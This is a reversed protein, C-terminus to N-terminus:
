RPITGTTHQATRIHDLLQRSQAHRPQLALAQLVATEARSPHGALLEAQGLCHLHEASPSECIVAASLSQIAEEHRGLAMCALGTLYLVRQPEEGPAYTTALSHLTALARRPQNIQRYLEAIELLIERDDPAYGIARHYDALARDLQDTARMVRGRTAWASALKPNLDLALEANQRARRDQGQELYMQALRVRLEADEGALRVATELEAIAQPKAGQQWLAESYHRRAEPDDPFTKVAQALLKAARDHDGRESAAVGQQSLRRCSALSDSVPGDSGPWRCGAVLPAAMLLMVLPLRWITNSRVRSM